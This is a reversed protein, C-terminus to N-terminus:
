SARVRRALLRDRPRRRDHDHHGSYRLAGSRIQDIGLVSWGDMKPMMVDLTVVDPPDRAGHDLAEAGDRAHLVRYGERGLMAGVTEHVADDDDVVLVTVDGAVDGSMTPQEAQDDAVM